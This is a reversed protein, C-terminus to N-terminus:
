CLSSWSCGAKWVLNIITIDPWSHTKEERTQTRLHYAVSFFGDPVCHCSSLCSSITKVVDSFSRTYVNSTQVHFVISPVRTMTIEDSCPLIVIFSWRTQERVLGRYMSEGQRLSLPLSILFLWSCPEVNSNEEHDNNCSSPLSQLWIDRAPSFLSWYFEVRCRM